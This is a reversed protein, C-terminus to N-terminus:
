RTPVLSATTTPLMTSGTTLLGVNIKAPRTSPAHLGPATRASTLPVADPHAQIMPSMNSALLTPFVKATPSSMFVVLIAVKARAVPEVTSLSKPTSASPLPTTIRSSSTSDILSPLPPVKLGAHVVTSLSTNIRTGPSITPVM